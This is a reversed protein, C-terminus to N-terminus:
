VSVFKLHELGYQNEILWGFVGSFEGLPGLSVYGLHLRCTARALHLRLM